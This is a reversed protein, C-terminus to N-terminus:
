ADSTNSAYVNFTQSSMNEISFNKEIEAKLNQGLERRMGEDRFLMELTTSLLKPTPEILFGTRGTEIIDRNGPLDSAITPLEAMGAEMLVYPLGEKKSPLIFVDYAKLYPAGEVFGLLHVRKQLHNDKILKELNAREEGEGIIVLHIKEPLSTMAMIVSSWNKNPHLEGMGGIWFSRPPIEPSLTKRASPKDLFNITSVGNKVLYIKNTLCPMRRARDFTETSIMITKHALKITLWTGIYILFRQWYPRWVEDITLGHSTFIINKVGALRGALAGVGGAKSSTVHLVDPKQKRVINWVEFISLIDSFFSMDRLFNKVKIVPINNAQLKAVLQGTPAGAKGTGGCAVVVDHGANKASVALDLVYKQAGGYNSKTILYLIKLKKKPM